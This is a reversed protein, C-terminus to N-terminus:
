KSMWFMLFGVTQAFAIERNVLHSKGSISVDFCRSVPKSEVSIRRGEQKLKLLKEDEEQKAAMESYYEFAKKVPSLIPEQDIM